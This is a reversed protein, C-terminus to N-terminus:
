VYRIEDEDKRLGYREDFIEDVLQRTSDSFDSFVDMM